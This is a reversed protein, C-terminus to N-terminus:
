TASWMSNVCDETVIGLDCTVFWLDLHWMIVDFSLDVTRWWWLYIPIRLDYDPIWSFPIWTGNHFVIDVVVDRVGFACVVYWVRCVRIWYWVWYVSEMTYLSLRPDWVGIVCIGYLSEAYLSLVCIGHASGMCRNCLDWVGIWYVSETCLNWVRIGYM